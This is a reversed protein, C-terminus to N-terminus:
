LDLNSPGIPRGRIDVRVIRQGQERATKIEHCPICIGQLNSEDDQDGGEHLPIIHDLEMAPEEDCIACIPNDTLLIERQKRYRSNGTM